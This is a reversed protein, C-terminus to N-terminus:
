EPFFCSIIGDESSLVSRQTYVASAVLLIFWRSCVLEEFEGNEFVRCSKMKLDQVFSLSNTVETWVVQLKLCSSVSSLEWLLGPYTDCEAYSTLFYVASLSPSMLELYGFATSM